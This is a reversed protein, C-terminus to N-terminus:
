KTVKNVKAYRGVGDMWEGVHSLGFLEVMRLRKTAKAAELEAETIEGRILLVNLVVLFDGIEQVMRERPSPHGHRTVYEDGAMSWRLAKFREKAIEVGEEAIMDWPDGITANPYKPEASM